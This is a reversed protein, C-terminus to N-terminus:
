SVFFFQFWKLIGPYLESFHLFYCIWFQFQLFIVLFHLFGLRLNSEQGQDKLKLPLGWPFLPKRLTERDLFPKQGDEREEKFYSSSGRKYGLTKHKLPNPGPLNVAAFLSKQQLSFARTAWSERQDQSEESCHSKGESCRTSVAKVWQSCGNQPKEAEKQASEHSKYAALFICLVLM